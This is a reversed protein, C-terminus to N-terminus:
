SVAPSPQSCTSACVSARAFPTSSEETRSSPSCRFDGFASLGRLNGAASALALGPLPRGAGLVPRIRGRRFGRGPGQPHAAPGEHGLRGPRPRDDKELTLPGTCAKRLRTLTGARHKELWRIVGAPARVELGGRGRSRAVRAQIERLVRLGMGTAHRIRGTGQCSGCEEHTIRTLAQRIRQRSLIVCGFPDMQGLRIRAPRSLAGEAPGERGRAASSRARMDILDLVVLGGRDRLRLQRAVEDVAELNTHLATAEPDSQATMRGSNVDVAFLAETQDMVISGGSPLRVARRFADELQTEIEYAHFIPIDDNHILVEPIHRAIKSQKEIESELAARDAFEVDEDEDPDGSESEDSPADESEAAESGPLPADPEPAVSANSEGESSDEESAAMDEAADEGEADAGVALEGLPAESAQAHARLWIARPRPRPPQM